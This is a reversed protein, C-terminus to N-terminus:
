LGLRERGAPTLFLIAHAPCYPMGELRNHACRMALGWTGRKSEVIMACHHNAADLYDIVPGDILSPIEVPQVPTMKPAAAVFAAKRMAQPKKEARPKKEAPPKPPKKTGLLGMRALKGMVKNRSFRMAEGIKSASLGAAHMERLRREEDASWMHAANVKYPRGM